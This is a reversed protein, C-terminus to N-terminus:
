SGSTGSSKRSPRTVVVETASASAANLACREEPMSEESSTWAPVSVTPRRGVAVAGNQEVACSPEYWPTFM